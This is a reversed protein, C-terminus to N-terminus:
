KTINSDLNVFKKIKRIYELVTDQINSSKFFKLKKDLVTIDSGLLVFILKYTM